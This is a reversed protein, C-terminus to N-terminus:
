ALLERDYAAHRPQPDTLTHSCYAITRRIGSQLQTLVGGVAVKSADCHIDFKGHGPEPLALIPASVLGQKWMRFTRDQRAGWVVASRRNAKGTLEHLPAAIEAFRDIFHSYWGLMGLFSPM